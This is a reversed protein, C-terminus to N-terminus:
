LMLHPITHIYIYPLIHIIPTPLIFTNTIFLIDNPHTNPTCKNSYIYLTPHIFTQTIALNTLCYTLTETYIKQTVNHVYTVNLTYSHTLM